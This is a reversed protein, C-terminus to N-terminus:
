ILSDPRELYWEVTRRLGNEFAVIPRWGFEDRIRSYDIAYRFDHGPRDSTLTILGESGDVPGLEDVLRCLRRALELNSVENAGGIDYTQGSAGGKLVLMLAELHDDVHMWDRVNDGTGFIPIRDRRLCSGIVVPILKEPHQWPGYNNSSHTIVVPLGYTNAWARVLHDSAAKSASYPSRPDYAATEDFPPDGPGLAGYVEDTSVHLFKFSDVLEKREWLKRCAELLNFTGVINSRVFVEPGRISRDVHSEAALHVVAEPCHRRLVSFTAEADCLDVKEFIHRRDGQVATLADLNAAYTLKDLNVVECGEETVLRNVLNCGIFGAGGTVLIKM